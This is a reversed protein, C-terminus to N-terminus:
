KEESEKEEIAKSVNPYLVDFAKEILDDSYKNKLERIDNTIEDLQGEIEKDVRKFQEPCANCLAFILLSPVPRAKRVNKKVKVVENYQIEYIIDGNEDRLYKGKNDKTAVKLPKREIFKEEEEYDYGIAEQYLSKKLNLILLQKSRKLAEELESHENKYKQLTSYAIGLNQAIQKETQGEERWGIIFKINPEVLESYRGKAM